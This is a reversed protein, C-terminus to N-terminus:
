DTESIPLPNGNEVLHQQARNRFETPTMGHLERFARNFPTLSQYGASLALTLVPTGNQTPNSLADCVEALRYHHLLANFNRFGLRDHILRRVRYEPLSLHTALDRVALGPRRHIHDTVFAARIRATDVDLTATDVAPPPTARELPDINQAIDRRLLDWVVISLISLGFLVQLVHIPYIAPQPILGYKSLNREIVLATLAQVVYWVALLRRTRRRAEVLDARREDFIWYLALGVFIGQLATPLVDFLLREGLPHVAQSTTDVFWYVPVELFLQLALAAVLLRPLPKGERFIGYCFLAFVGATANRLLNLLPYWAGFDIQYPEPIFARYDWRASLTYAIIGLALLAMFYANRSTPAARLYACMAIVALTVVAMDLAVLVLHVNLV